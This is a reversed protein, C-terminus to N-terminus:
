HGQECAKKTLACSVSERAVTFKGGQYGGRGVVQLALVTVVCWRDVHRRRWLRAHAALHIDRPSDSIAFGWDFLACFPDTHGQLVVVKHWNKSITTRAFQRHPSLSESWPINEEVLLRERVICDPCLSVLSVGGLVEFAVLYNKARFRCVELPMYLWITPM